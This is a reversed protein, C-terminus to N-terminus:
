FLAVIQRQNGTPPAPAHGFRIRKPRISISGSAGHARRRCGPAPPRGAEPWTESASTSRRSRRTPLSSSRAAAHGPTTTSSFLRGTWTEHSADLPQKQIPASALCPHSDELAKTHAIGTTIILGDSSCPPASPPVVTPSAMPGNGCRRSSSASPRATPKRDIPVPSATSSAWRTAPLQSADQLPVGVRQRDARPACHRRTRRLVSPERASLRSRSAQCEDPHIQTFGIRAHDDVAVFLFEWGAGDVRDRPDGTVRHGMRVIRGLKKTDIHLLDGPHEHEYRVTPESPTLDSWRSLGARALTRGVTSQSVGLVIPSKPM